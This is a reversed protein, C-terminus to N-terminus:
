AATVFNVLRPPRAVVRTIERDGIARHAKESARAAEICEEESAEASVTITDRVRGDVQVVLTAEEERALEEEYSPFSAAHVSGEEGLVNRWLEETIFPAMPSLMLVLARVAESVGQGADLASRIENTLEMLRAIVVNFRFREYHTAVQRITRHARRRLEEPDDGSREKSEQVTRWVRGLWSRVGAPSVTAWDVDDEVPGAFLMSLRIVDAGYKELEEAFEVLNGRSKSMAGGEMIVMGQNLLKTFPERFTVMGMDFLAKVFFRSYLLHLIAHEIGGTYQDVPMWRHVEGPDFPRGEERPSCYRLFYWSSDVFTDMTDTERRAEGGCRPCTVNVFGPHRALPSEGKPSFDVDDPLLVPLEEEPVPVLGDKPCHIIPIPCGWYRQRSILWDRLRYSIAARGLGKEELWRIVEPIGEPTHTGDFPGSNVMSGEGAWAETMTAADLDLGDPQIVIRIELGHEKAFEFDRQDHFPVGMIAGTGYEM